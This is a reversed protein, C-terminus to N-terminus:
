QEKERLLRFRPRGKPHAAYAAPLRATMLQSNRRDFRGRHSWMYRVREGQLKRFCNAVDTQCACRPALPETRSPACAARAPHDRARSGYISMFQAAVLGALGDRLAVGVVAMVIVTARIRRPLLSPLLRRGDAARRGIHRHAPPDLFSGFGPLFPFLSCRVGGTEM